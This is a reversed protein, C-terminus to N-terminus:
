EPDYIALKEDKSIDNDGQFIYPFTCLQAKAM